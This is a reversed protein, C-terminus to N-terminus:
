IYASCRRITSGTPRPALVGPAGADDYAAARSALSAPARSEASTASSGSAAASSTPTRSRTCLRVFINRQASALAREWAVSIAPSIAYLPSYPTCLLVSSLVSSVAPSPVTRYTPALLEASLALTEEEARSQVCRACWTRGCVATDAGGSAGFSECLHSSACLDCCRCAPVVRSSVTRARAM